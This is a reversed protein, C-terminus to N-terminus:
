SGGKPFFGLIGITIYIFFGRFQHDIMPLNMIKGNDMEDSDGKQVPHMHQLSCSLLPTHIPKFIM